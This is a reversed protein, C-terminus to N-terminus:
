IIDQCNCFYTLHYRLNSIQEEGSHLRDILLHTNFESGGSSQTDESKPHHMLRVPNPNEMRTKM